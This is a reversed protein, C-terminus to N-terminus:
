LFEMPPQGLVFDGLQYEAWADPNPTYDRLVTGKANTVIMDEYKSGISDAIASFFKKKSKRYFDGYVQQYWTKYAEYVKTVTYPDDRKVPGQRKQMFDEFFELATNNEVKYDRREEAISKPETFRYGRKIVERFAMVARYVIGARESYMKDLLKGVSSSKYGIISGDAEVTEIHMMMFINLDDRLSGCVAIIRRFHDALENYKNFGTEKSRDFFETRMIYIADDIVVNKIHPANNDISKLYNVVTEWNSIKFLNKNAENYQGASGKFPLRKGLINFVATEKPDLGKVSTSKGSGSEGMILVLNSM